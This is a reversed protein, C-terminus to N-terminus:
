RNILSWKNIKQPDIKIEEQNLAVTVAYQFCKSDKKNTPNVTAKKNKIWDPSDIHSGGCNPNRKHWKYYLLHVYEFVFEKGKMSELNDQYRNKPSKFLEEIVEDAEDNIM